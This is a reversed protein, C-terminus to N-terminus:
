DQKMQVIEGYVATEFEGTKDSVACADPELLSYSDVINSRNSCDYAMFAKAPGGLMGVLGLVITVLPLKGKDFGRERRTAPKVREKMAAKTREIETQMDEESMVEIEKVEQGM